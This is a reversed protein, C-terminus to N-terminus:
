EVTHALYRRLLTLEARSIDDVEGVRETLLELVAIHCEVGRRDGYRKLTDQQAKPARDRIGSGDLDGTAVEYALELFRVFESATRTDFSNGTLFWIDSCQELFFQKTSKIGLKAAFSDPGGKVRYRELESRAEQARTAILRAAQAANISFESQPNSHAITHGHFEPILPGLLRKTATLKDIGFDADKLCRELRIAAAEIKSLKDITERFTLQRQRASVDGFMTLLFRVAEDEEPNLRGLLAVIENLVDTDSSRNM